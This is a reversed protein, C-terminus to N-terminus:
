GSGSSDIGCGRKTQKLYNRNDKRRRRPREFKRNFNLICKGDRGCASCALV